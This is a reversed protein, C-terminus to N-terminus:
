CMRLMITINRTQRRRVGIRLSPQPIMILLNKPNNPSQTLTNCLLIQLGPSGMRHQLSLPMCSVSVPGPHQVHSRPSYSPHMSHSSVSPNSTLCQTKLLPPRILCPESLRGRPSQVDLTRPFPCLVIIAIGIPPYVIGRHGVHRVSLTLGMRGVQWREVVPEPLREPKIAIVFTNM